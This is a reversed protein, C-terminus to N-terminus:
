VLHWYVSISHESTRRYMLSFTIKRIFFIYMFITPLRPYGDCFVLVSWFLAIFRRTIRVISPCSSNCYIRAVYDDANHWTERQPTLWLIQGLTIYTILSYL